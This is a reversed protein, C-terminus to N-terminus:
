AMGCHPLMGCGGGARRDGGQNAWSAAQDRGSSEVRVLTNQITSQLKGWGSQGSMKTERRQDKDCPKDWTHEELWILFPFIYVFKTVIEFLPSIVEM